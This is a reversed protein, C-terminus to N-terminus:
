ELEFTITVNGSGVAAALGAADDIRGVKTYRYSTTFTKYFLVLCDAGWLMVDVTQITGPNSANTPFSTSFHYYKENGNLENMDITVPLIAKFAAATENDVLTATFTQSGITINMTHREANARKPPSTDNACSVFGTILFFTVLILITLFFTQTM